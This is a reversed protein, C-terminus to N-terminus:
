FCQVNQKPKYERQSQECTLVASFIHVLTLQHGVRTLISSRAVICVTAVVADTDVPPSTVVAALVDVVTGACSTVVAGGAMIAHGREEALTRM